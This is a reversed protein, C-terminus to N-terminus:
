SSGARWASRAAPTPVLRELPVQWRLQAASRRGLADRWHTLTLGLRFGQPLLVQLDADLGRVSGAARLSPTPALASGGHAMLLVRLPGQALELGATLLRVDGGAPYGLPADRQVYGAAYLPHGYATGPSPRGFAGGATTNAAEAFLNLAAGGDLAASLEAGVSGLYRSPLQHAEDEGIAQGHLAISQREGLRLTYRLDFGGLQNGPEISSGSGFNDAGALGRLLTHLSESRGAGGWQMVRSAGLELGDLPQVELRAGLLKVQGPGTSNSLQGAFVDARWPGLWSLAPLEFPVASTKHWGIAPVARAGGDLILSGIRSPGWHRRQVSVYARGPGVPASLSSGDLDFRGDRRDLAFGGFQWRWGATDGGAFRWQAGTGGRVPLALFDPGVPRLPGAALTLDAMSVPEADLGALTVRERESRDGSLPDEARVPGALV